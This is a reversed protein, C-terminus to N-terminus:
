FHFTVGKTNLAAKKESPSLLFLTVGGAVLVAGALIGITSITAASSADDYTSQVDARQSEPCRPYDVCKADLDSKKGAAIVGFVAGVGLGIAGAGAAGVGVWQMTSWGDDSRSPELDGPPAPREKEREKKPPDLSVPATSEGAGLRVTTRREGGTTSVVVEHNGPDVAVREMGAAVPEGDITVKAANNIAHAFDIWAIQADLKTARARAESARAPDTNGALRVAELFRTRASAFRGLKEYCDGLNLLAGVSPEMMHAELFKRAAGEYDGTKALARGEEFVKVMEPSAASASEPVLLPLALALIWAGVTKPLRMPIM